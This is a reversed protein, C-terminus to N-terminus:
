KLEANLSEREREREWDPQQKNLDSCERKANRRRAESQSALGNFNADLSNLRGGRFLLMPFANSDCRLEIPPRLLFDRRKLHVRSAPWALCVLRRGLVQGDSYAFSRQRALELSPLRSRLFLFVLAVSSQRGLSLRAVPM